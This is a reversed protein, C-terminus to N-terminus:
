GFMRYRKYNVMGFGLLNRIFSMGRVTFLDISSSPIANIPAVNTMALSMMIGTIMAKKILM